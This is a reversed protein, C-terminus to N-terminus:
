TVQSEIHAIEQDTLNFQNYLEKDGWVKSTDFYPLIDIVGKNVTAIFFKNVIYHFMKSDFLSMASEETANSDLDFAYVTGPMKMENSINGNDFMKRMKNYTVRTFSAMVMRKKSKESTYKGYSRRFPNFKYNTGKNYSIIKKIISFDIVSPNNIPIFEMGRVDYEFEGNWTKFKTMEDEKEKDLIFYSFYDHSHGVGPFHRGCEGLNAYVIFNNMYEPFLSIKGKRMQAGPGGWHSPTILAVFRNSLNYALRIFEPWLSPKSNNTNQYPPNSIIVDFKMKPFSERLKLYNYMFIRSKDIGLKQAVASKM